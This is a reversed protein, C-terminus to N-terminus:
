QRVPGLSPLRAPHCASILEEAEVHHARLWAPSTSRGGALRGAQPQGLGDPKLRRGSRARFDQRQWTGIIMPQALGTGFHEAFVLPVFGGRHQRHQRRRFASRDSRSRRRPRPPMKRARSRGVM